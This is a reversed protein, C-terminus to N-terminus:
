RSKQLAIRVAGDVKPDSRDISELFTAPTSGANSIVSIAAMRVLAHVSSDAAIERIKPTLGDLKREGAIRLAAMSAAIGSADPKRALVEALLPQIEADSVEGGKSKASGGLVHLSLLAPAVVPADAHALEKFRKKIGDRIVAQDEALVWLQRLHQIAYDRAILQRRPNSAVGVLVRALKERANPIRRLLHCIEHFYEAQLDSDLLPDPPNSVEGLLADIDPDGLDSGCARLLDIRQRGPTSPDLLFKVEQRLNSESQWDARPISISELPPPGSAVQPADSVRHRFLQWTVATSAMCATALVVKRTRANM